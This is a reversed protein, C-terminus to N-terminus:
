YEEMVGYTDVMQFEGNKTGTILFKAKGKGVHVLQVPRNMTGEFNVDTDCFHHTYLISPAEDETAGSPLNFATFSNGAITTLIDRTNMKYKFTEQKKLYYSYVDGSNSASSIYVIIDYDSENRIVADITGKKNALNKVGSYTEFDVDDFCDEKDYYEKLVADKTVDNYIREMLVNKFEKRLSISSGGGMIIGPDVENYDVFNNTNMETILSDIRARKEKSFQTFSPNEKLELSDPDNFPEFYILWFMTGGLLLIFALAVLNKWRIPTRGEGHNRVELRGSKLENRLGSLKYEHEKNLEISEMRKLIWNAFRVTCARTRIANLVSDVYDLKLNYSAKSLHNVCQIFEDSCMPQIFQILEEEKEFVDAEQILKIKAKIPKFLQNEVVARDDTTLLQVYSFVLTLRKINETAEQLLRDVRYPSIFAKFQEAWRHKLHGHKDDFSHNIERGELFALLDYNQEVWGYFVILQPNQFGEVFYLYDAESFGQSLALRKGEDSRLKEMFSVMGDDTLLQSQDTYLEEFKSLAIFGPM